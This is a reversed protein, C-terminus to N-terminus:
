KSEGVDRVARRMRILWMRFAEAIEQETWGDALLAAFRRGFDLRESRTWTPKM